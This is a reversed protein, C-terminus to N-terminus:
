DLVLELARRPLEGELIRLHRIEVTAKFGAYEAHFPLHMTM